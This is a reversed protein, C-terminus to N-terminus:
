EDDGKADVHNHHETRNQKQAEKLKKNKIKNEPRQL